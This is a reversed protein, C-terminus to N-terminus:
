LTSLSCRTECTIVKKLAFLDYMFNHKSPPSPTNEPSKKKALKPGCFLKETSGSHLPSRPYSQASYTDGTITLILIFQPSIVKTLNFPGQRRIQRSKRHCCFEFIKEKLDIM